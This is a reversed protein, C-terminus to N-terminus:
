SRRYQEVARQYLERIRAIADNVRKASLAAFAADGEKMQDTIAAAYRPLRAVLADPWIGTIDWQGAWWRMFDDVKKRLVTRIQDEALADDSSM